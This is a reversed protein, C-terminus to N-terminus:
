SFPGRLYYGRITPLLRTKQGPREGPGIPWQRRVRAMRFKGLPSMGNELDGVICGDSSSDTFGTAKSAAWAQVQENNHFSQM